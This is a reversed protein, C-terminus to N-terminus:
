DTAARVKMVQRVVVPSPVGVGKGGASSAAFRLLVSGQRVFTYETPIGRGVTRFAM